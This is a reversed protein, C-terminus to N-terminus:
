QMHEMVLAVSTYIRVMNLVRDHAVTSNDHHHIDFEFVLTELGFVEDIRANARIETATDKYCAAVNAPNFYEPDGSERAAIRVSPCANFDGLKRSMMQEISHHVLEMAPDDFALISVRAFPEHNMGDSVFEAFLDVRLCLALSMSAAHQILKPQNIFNEAYWAPSMEFRAIWPFCYDEPRTVSQVSDVEVGIDFNSVFATADRFQDFCHVSYSELEHKDMLATNKGAMSRLLAMFSGFDNGVM